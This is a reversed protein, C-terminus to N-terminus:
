SNRVKAEELFQSKEEDEETVKDGNKEKEKRRKKARAEKDEEEDIVYSLLTMTLHFKHFADLCRGAKFLVIASANAEKAKDFKTESYWQPM